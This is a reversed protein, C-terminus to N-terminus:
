AARDLADLLRSSDKTRGLLVSLEREHAVLMTDAGKPLGGGAIWGRLAGLTKARSGVALHAEDLFVAVVAPQELEPAPAPHSTAESEASPAGAAAPELGAVPAAFYLIDVPKGDETLKLESQRLDLVPEGSRTAWADVQVLRVDVRGEFRPIPPPAKEKGSAVSAPLALAGALVLHLTNSRM